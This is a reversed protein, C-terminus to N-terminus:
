SSFVHGVISCSIKGGTIPWSISRYRAVDIKFIFSQSVDGNANRVQVQLGYKWKWRMECGRLRLHRMWPISTRDHRIRRSCGVHGGCLTPMLAQV